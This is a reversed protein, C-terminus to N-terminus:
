DDGHRPAQQFPVGLEAPQPLRQVPGAPATPRHHQDRALGADALGAQDPRERGRGPRPGPHQGADAVVEGGRAGEPREPVHGALGAPGQGRGDVAPGPAVGDEVGDVALQGGARRHHEDLVEVPGVVGGELDDAVQAPPHGGQGAQQDAGVAVVLQGLVV